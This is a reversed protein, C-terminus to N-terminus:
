DSKKASQSYEKLNQLVSEVTADDVAEPKKMKGLAQITAQLQNVYRNCNKCIQLHMKFKLRAFFPLEQDLYENANETIDKCSLM